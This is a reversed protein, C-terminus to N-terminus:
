SLSSSRPTSRDMIQDLQPDKNVAYIAAVAELWKYMDGDHFPPGHHEGRKEGSAILFNNFGKGEDSQWTQWMSKVSTQSLVGFREGWFGGTWTVADLPTSTMISYPSGSTLTLGGQQAMAPVSVLM